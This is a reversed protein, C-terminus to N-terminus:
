VSEYPVTRVKVSSLIDKVSDLVTDDDPFDVSNDERCPLEVGNIVITQM